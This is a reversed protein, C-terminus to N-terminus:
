SWVETLTTLLHVRLRLTAASTLQPTGFVTTAKVALPGFFVVNDKDTVIMDLIVTAWFRARFITGM